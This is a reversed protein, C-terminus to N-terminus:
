FTQSNVLLNAVINVIAYAMIVVVLGLVANTVTKKGTIVSKEKKEGLFTQSGTIIQFGGIVIFLIAVSGALGFGINIAKLIVAQITCYKPLTAQIATADASGGNTTLQKIQQELVYCNNAAHAVNPILAIVNVALVVVFALLIHLNFKKM